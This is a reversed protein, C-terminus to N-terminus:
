PVNSATGFTVDFSGNTIQIETGMVAATYGVGTGSFNGKMGTSSFSTINATGANVAFGSGDSSSMGTAGKVIIM